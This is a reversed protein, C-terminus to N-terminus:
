LLTCPYRKFSKGLFNSKRKIFWQSPIIFLLKKQLLGAILSFTSNSAILGKSSIMHIFAEHDSGNFINVSIGHIVQPFNIDKEETIVSIDSFNTIIFEKNSEIAQLINKTSVIGHFKKFKNLTYDGRRLHICLSNHKILNKFKFNKKLNKTRRDINDQFYGFYFISNLFFFNIENKNIIEMLKNLFRFFIFSLLNGERIKFESLDFYKNLQFPRHPNNQYSSLDIIVKHGKYLYEYAMSLICVQNGLGGQMFFIKKKM